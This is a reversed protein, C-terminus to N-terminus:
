PKSKARRARGARADAAAEKREQSPSEHGVHLVKGSKADVNVEDIGSRGPVKFDFSYILKGKERELELAAVRGRPVRRQASLLANAEPITAEKALSDPVDRKYSPTTTQASATRLAALVAGAVIITTKM